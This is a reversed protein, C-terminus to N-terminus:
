PKGQPFGDVGKAVIQKIAESIPIHVIGNQKDVWYYTNLARDERARLLTLDRAPDTQLAPASTATTPMRDVDSAATQFVVRLVLVSVAILALLM